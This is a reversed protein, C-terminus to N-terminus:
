GRFNQVILWYACCCVHPSSFDTMGSFCGLTVILMAADTRSNGRQTPANADQGVHHQRADRREQALVLLLGEQVDRLEVHAVVLLLQLLQVLTGHGEDLRQEVLM